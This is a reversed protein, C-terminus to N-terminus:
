TAAIRQFGGDAPSWEFFGCCDVQRACDACASLFKRKWDSISNACYRQWIDPVTCIPFNYLSAPLGRAAAIGLARAVPQFDRSTDCFEREWNMRGFGIREMQMIAWVDLAPLRTAIFHGLRGLGDINSRMVVTRLEIAAGARTLRALNTTLAAFAGAKGVIQDHLAEDASYLPIGWLVREPGLAEIVEMDQATFHQGNTLVHFRLDPREDTARTLFQFLRAKMLLPEGGTIGIYHGLPAIRVAEAFSDLLDFDYDKPPQSCMVCRQDCRETVLLTNHRSGARLLRHAARGGPLLLLIDGDILNPDPTRVAVSIGGADYEAVGDAWSQLIADHGEASPADRGADRCLRIVLPKALPITSVALRLPIM